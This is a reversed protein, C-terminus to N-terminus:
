PPVPIPQGDGGCIPEHAGRYHAVVKAARDVVGRLVRGLTSLSWDAVLRDPISGGVVSTVHYGLLTRGDLLTIALWAGHNVPTYIAGQARPGDVGPVRGASPAQRALTPGDMALRWAHEWSRGGTALALPRHNWVDVVWHRDTFPRPLDLYQYWQNPWTGPPTLRVETIEPAAAFHPDLASLWLHERPMPVVLLGLVRQPAGPGGHDRVRVVKGDDLRRLDEDSLAPLAFAAARSYAALADGVAAPGPALAIAAAAVLPVV